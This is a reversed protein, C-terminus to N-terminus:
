SKVEGKTLVVFAINQQIMKERSLLSSLTHGSIQQLGNRQKFGQGFIRFIVDNVAQAHFHKRRGDASIGPPKHQRGACHPAVNRGPSPQPPSYGGIPRKQWQCSCGGLPAAAHRGKRCRRFRSFFPHFGGNRHQRFFAPRTIKALAADAM